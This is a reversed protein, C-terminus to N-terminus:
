PCCLSVTPQPSVTAQCPTLRALMLSGLVAVTGALLVMGTLVTAKAALMPWRRPIAALTSRIMGSSYEGTIILVGLVAVVAQGAQVGVLSIKVQDQLERAQFRVASTALWSLGVTLVVVVLLLWGTGPATRLKTWEAHLASKVRGAAATRCEGPRSSTGDLHLAGCLRGLPGAPLVGDAAPLRRRGTGVGAHEPHHCVQPRPSGCCGSRPRGTARFRGRASVPLVTLLITVTLAAASRRLITGVALAFVASLALLAATGVVVRVETLVSVPLVIGGASRRLQTIVVVAILASVLGVIFTVTGLVVAKAALVRGRRPSAIFTTRILHRRFEATVFSTSVVLIAVLGAFVGVLGREITNGGPGAVAPAIDGSGTMTFTGDSQSSSRRPPQPSM